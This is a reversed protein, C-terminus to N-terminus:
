LQHKWGLDALPEVVGGSSRLQEGAGKTTEGIKTLSLEIPPDDLLKQGDEASVTFLLEFDEGDSLAHELPTRQDDCNLAADSIPIAEAELVAGVGSARALHALDAALGDSVDVMAHLNVAQHLAAAENLRPVFDLHKGSLSGGLEGTVFVWDGPLAGSRLVPGGASKEGLLTVNIVLPGNWSNTDGGAVTVGFREALDALGRYLEEYFQRGKGQPLAMSVVAALPTGAMAAIDSLNVAMAKRGVQIASAPPMTFHVGEMLLDATLLCNAAEPFSLVATDDGIGVPLRNHPSVQRRIWDIFEFETSGSDVFTRDSSSRSPNACIAAKAITM